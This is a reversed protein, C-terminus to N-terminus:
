LDFVRSLLFVAKSLNILLSSVASSLFEAGSFVDISNEFVLYCLSYLNSFFAFLLYHGLATPGSFVNLM